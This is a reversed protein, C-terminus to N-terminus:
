SLLDSYVMVWDTNLPAKIQTTELRKKESSSGCSQWIFETGWDHVLVNFFHLNNLELWIFRIMYFHIYDSM